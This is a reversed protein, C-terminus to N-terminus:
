EVCTPAFKVLFTAGTNKANYFVLNNMGTYRPDIVGKSRASIPDYPFGLEAGAKYPGLRVILSANDENIITLFCTDNEKERKIIVTTPSFAGNKYYVKASDVESPERVTAKSPNSKDIFLLNQPFNKNSEDKKLELKNELVNVASEKKNELRRTVLLLVAIFFIFLFVGISTNRLYPKM